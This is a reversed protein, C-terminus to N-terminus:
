VFKNLWLKHERSISNETDLVIKQIESENQEIEIINKFHCLENATVSYTTKLEDFRRTQKWSFLSATLTTFLGLYSFNPILKALVLVTLIIGISLSILGLIFYFSSNNKNSKAKQNYWNIQEQIRNDIYFQKKEKINANFNAYIWAPSDNDQNIVETYSLFKNINIEKKLFKIRNHFESMAEEYKNCNYIGCKFILLWCNTLISEALFRSKQWGDMYNNAFDIIMLLLVLTMLVLYIILKIKELSDCLVPLTSIVAILFLILLQARILKIYYSQCLESITNFYQYSDPGILQREFNVKIM